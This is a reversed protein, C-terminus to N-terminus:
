QLLSPINRADPALRAFDEGLEASQEALAFLTTFTGSPFLSFIPIERFLPSRLASLTEQADSFALASATYEQSFSTSNRRSVIGLSRGNESCHARYRCVSRNLVESFFLLLRWRFFRALALMRNQNQFQPFVHKQQRPFDLYQRSPFVSVLLLVFRIM